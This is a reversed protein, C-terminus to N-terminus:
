IHAMLRSIRKRRRPSRHRHRVAYRVWSVILAFATVTGGLLFTAPEPTPSLEGLGAVAAGEAFPMNEYATLGGALIENLLDPSAASEIGAGDPFGARIPAATAVAGPAALVVLAMLLRVEDLAFLQPPRSFEGANQM